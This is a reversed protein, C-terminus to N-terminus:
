ENDGYLAKLNREVVARGRWAFARRGFQEDTMSALLGPTLASIRDEYFDAIPTLAPSANYPCSSQCLDCGWVTNFKRMLEIECQALEGKRQTIASLCDTSEGRLIGTPCAKRCKGCHSCSEPQSYSREGLLKNLEEADVDTIIDALFVYSGYKENILLGNDGIFGLGGSLACAREDIPSHDGFPSFASVPYHKKLKEIIRSTINKIILHYDLSAAYLSINETTGTYYPLLFIIVSKPTFTLKNLLRENICRCEDFSVVSFYEIGESVFINEAMAIGEERHRNYM